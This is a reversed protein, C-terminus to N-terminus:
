GCCGVAPNVKHESASVAARNEWTKLSSFFCGGWGSDLGPSARLAPCFFFFVVVTDGHDARCVPLFNSFFTAFIHVRWLDHAKYSPVPEEPSPLALPSCGTIGFVM